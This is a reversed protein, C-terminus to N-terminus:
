ENSSVDLYVHKYSYYDMLNNHWNKVSPHVLSNTAYTYIPITPVEEVLLAEAEQFYALRQQEDVTNAALAILEDYRANSWGTKNNGGDTVFVDLFTNPDYYDGVWGSRAVQYDGTRLTALFVKWDQNQINVNINLARKWMQQIVVAIKQHDEMTNYMITIPPFGEGNPYGAEALLAKAQEIDYPINSTAQYGNEFPPTFHFAPIQGGKTVKSTIQERDISYALAKRVRVDDLPPKTTNLLYNYTGLFSFSRLAPDKDAHYQELKASPVTKTIHLQGARYMREETTSQQIPYFHIENLRINEADWYLPNKKVSFVKNSQWEKIVFGGNGVFNEPRTWRTGRQDAAGFKEITARHVPYLSHHDLLELFYPVPHNLEVQLTYKDLAKVGVESFDTIEGHNFQEANRIVNLSYAYQNGLAPLLARQWSWVFDEATIEDGNSWRATNRIKFTYTKGDESRTWSEAVAPEPELTKGNKTVLGEFLAYQLHAEPMGTTVHPDVDSPEDGNGIHLIQQEIGTQVATQRDSSCASLLSAAILVILAGPFMKKM